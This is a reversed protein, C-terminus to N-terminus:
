RFGPPSTSVSLLCSRKALLVGALSARFVEADFGDPVSLRNENACNALYDWNGKGFATLGDILAPDSLPCDGTLRVVTTAQYQIFLSSVNLFM